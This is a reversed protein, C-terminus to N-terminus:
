NKFTIHKALAIYTFSRGHGKENKLVCHYPFAKIVVMGCIRRGPVCLRKVRNLKVRFEEADVMRDDYARDIGLCGIKDERALLQEKDIDYDRM